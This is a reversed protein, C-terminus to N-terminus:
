GVSRRSGRPYKKHQENQEKENKRRVEWKRMKKHADVSERVFVFCVDVAAISRRHGASGLAARRERDDLQLVEHVGRAAPHCQMVDGLQMVVVRREVAMFPQMLARFDGCAHHRLSDDECAGDDLFDQTM